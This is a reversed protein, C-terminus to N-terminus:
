VIGYPIARAVSGTFTPKNNARVTRRALVRLQQAVTTGNIAALTVAKQRTLKSIKM